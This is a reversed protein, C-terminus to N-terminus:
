EFWGGLLHARGADTLEDEYQRRDMEVHRPDREGLAEDSFPQVVPAFASSLPNQEGTARIAPWVFAPKPTLDSLALHKM